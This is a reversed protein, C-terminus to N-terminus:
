RRVLAVWVYFLNRGGARRYDMGDVLSHLLRLGLGRDRREALTEPSEDQPWRSPDFALGDDEFLLVIREPEVTLRVGIEHPGIDNFAYKIINTVVEEIALEVTYVM